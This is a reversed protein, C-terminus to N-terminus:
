DANDHSAEKVFEEIRIFGTPTVRIYQRERRTKICLVVGLRPDSLTREVEAPGWAFGYDTTECRM